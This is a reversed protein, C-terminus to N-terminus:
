EYFFDPDSRKKPVRSSRRLVPEPPDTHPSEGTAPHVTPPAPATPDTRSTPPVPTTPTPVVVPKLHTRTRWSLRGSGDLRVTYKRHALAETVIGSRDWEKTAQNQIRVKTGPQIPALDRHRGRGAVISDHTRAMELERRRLTKRWHQDVKYHQRMAPVGDRLQRGAALQAPSKDIGRLPTNLYQLLAATVKDTDLSGGPGTNMKLLRKASKVAAEARGNSQPYYASSTRMTVGWSRFFECMEESVLNTGGDTSIEEPAGWRAFHKRFQTKLRASTAEVPFHSVDLFGTLRDAYAMYTHGNEQFLDAVTRQFPYEPAPTLM